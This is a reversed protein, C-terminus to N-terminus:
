IPKMRTHYFLFFFLYTCVHPSIASSAAFGIEEPQTVTSTSKRKEASDIPAIKEDNKSQAQKTAVQMEFRPNRVLQRNGFNSSCIEDGGVVREAVWINLLVGRKQTM